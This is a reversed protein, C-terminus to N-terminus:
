RNKYKIKLSDNRKTYVVKTVFKRIIPNYTEFNMTFYDIDINEDDFHNKFISTNNIINLFYAKDDGLRNINKQIENIQKQIEKIESKYIKKGTSIFHNLNKNLKKRLSILDNTMKNIENNKNKILKNFSRKIEKDKLDTILKKIIKDIIDSKKDTSCDCKYINNKLTLTNKCESCYILGKFPYDEEYAGYIRYYFDIFVDKWLDWDIIKELNTCKIFIKDGEDDIEKLCYKEHTYDWYLCDDIKLDEKRIMKGAYYSRPIIRKLFSITVKPSQHHKYDNILDDINKEKKSIIFDNYYYFIDKILKSKDADKKFDHKNNDKGENKNDQKDTKKVKSYGTPAKSNSPFIGQDRLKQRGGKTRRTIYEPELTSISMLVNELFNTVYTENEFHLNGEKVYHVTVGHKNFLRKLQMFDDIRRSLRDRRILVLHKFMGAELDHLLRKFNKREYFHLKRASQKDEYTDYLFLNNDKIYKKCDEIQSTISFSDGKGSIRAYIAAYHVSTPIFSNNNSDTDECLNQAFEDVKNEKVQSIKM